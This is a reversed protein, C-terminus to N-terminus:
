TDSFYITRLKIEGKEDKIIAYLSFFMLYEVDNCLCFHDGWEVNLYIYLLHLKLLKQRM